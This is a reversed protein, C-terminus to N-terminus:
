LAKEMIYDDMVYGGGIPTAASRVTRFGMKEYAAISGANGKNVTLYVITLGHERASQEVAGLMRRALGNGRASQLLYIKSLFMRDEEPHYACYGVPKGEWEALLYVTGGALQERVADESQFRAVMYDVQGCPLIPGYHQRWIEGALLAVTKIQEPATVPTLKWQM